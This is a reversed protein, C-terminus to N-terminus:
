KVKPLNKSGAPRGKHKKVVPETMVVVPDGTKSKTIVVDLEIKELAPQPKYYVDEVVPTMLGINTIPEVIPEVPVPSDDSVKYFITPFLRALDDNCMYSAHNFPIVENNYVVNVIFNDPAAVIYTAM